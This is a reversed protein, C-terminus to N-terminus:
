KVERLQLDSFAVTLADQSSPSVVLRIFGAHFRSDRISACILGNIYLRIQQGRMIARIRNPEGMRSKLSPHDTWNVIPGGWETKAHWGVNFTGQASIRVVYDGEDGSRLELGASAHEYPGKIFRITVSVDFDDFPGPTRLIPHIRDSPAFTAWLEAPAGPRFELRDRNILVWGPADPERFDAGLLLEGLDPEPTLSTPIRFSAHCIDCSVVSGRMAMVRVPAGCNACSLEHLLNM